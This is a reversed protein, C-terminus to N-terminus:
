EKASEMQSLAWRKLKMMSAPSNLDDMLFWEICFAINNGLAMCEDATVDNTVLFYNDFPSMGDNLAKVALRLLEKKRESDSMM